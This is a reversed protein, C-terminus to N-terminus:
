NAAAKEKHFKDNSDDMKTYKRQQQHQTEKNAIYNKTLPEKMNKSFYEKKKYLSTKNIETQQQKKKTSNTMPTMWKLIN